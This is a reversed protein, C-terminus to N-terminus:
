FVHLKSVFAADQQETLRTIVWLHLLRLIQFHEGTSLHVVSQWFFFCLSVTQTEEWLLLSFHHSRWTSIDGHVDIAAALRLRKSRITPCFPFSPDSSVNKWSSAFNAAKLPHIEIQDCLCISVCNFSYRVFVRIAGKLQQVPSYIFITHNFCLVSVNCLSHTIFPM